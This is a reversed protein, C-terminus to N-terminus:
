KLLRYLKIHKSIRKFDNLFYEVEQLSRLTNEKKTKFDFNFKKKKHDKRKQSQNEPHQDM